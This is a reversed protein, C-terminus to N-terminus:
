PSLNVSQLGTGETMKGGNLMDMSFWSTEDDNSQSINPFDLFGHTKVTSIMPTTIDGLAPPNWPFIGMFIPHNPPKRFYPYGWNEDMKSPNGMTFWGNWYSKGKYVLSKPTGGHSQFAGVWWPSAGKSLRLGSPVDKWSTLPRRETGPSIAHGFPIAKCFKRLDGTIM